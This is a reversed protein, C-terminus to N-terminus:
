TMEAVNPWRRRPLGTESWINKVSRVSQIGLIDSSFIVIKTESTGLTEMVSPPWITAGILGM